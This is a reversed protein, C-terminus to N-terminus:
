ETTQTWDESLFLELAPPTEDILRLDYNIKISPELVFPDIATEGIFRRKSLLDTADGMLAGSIILQSYSVDSSNITGNGDAIFVGTLATVNANIMIDNAIFAGFGAPQFNDAITLTGDIVFTKSGETFTLANAVTLTVDDTIFYIGSDDPTTEWSDSGFFSAPDNADEDFEDWLGGTEIIDTTEDGTFVEGTSIELPTELKGFPNETTDTFTQIGINGGGRVEVYPRIIEVTASAGETSTSAEIIELITLGDCIKIQNNGIYFSSPNTWVGESVELQYEIVAFAVNNVEATDAKITLATNMEYEIDFIQTTELDFAAGTFEFYNSAPDSPDIDGKWEWQSNGSDLHHKYVWGSAAPITLDYVKIGTIRIDDSFGLDPSLTLTTKYLAKEDKAVAPTFTTKEVTANIENCTTCPDPIATNCEMDFDGTWNYLNDIGNWQWWTGSSTEDDPHCEGIALLGVAEAWDHTCVKVEAATAGTKCTKWINFETLGFSKHPTHKRCTVSGNLLDTCIGITSLTPPGGPGGGGPTSVCVINSFWNDNKEIAQNCIETSTGAGQILVDFNFEIWGNQSLDNVTLEVLGGAASGDHTINGTIGPNSTTVVENGIYVLLPDLNDNLITSFTSTEESEFRVTYTRTDGNNITGTPTISKQIFTVNGSGGSTKVCIINSAYPAVTSITLIAQNCLQTNSATAIVEATFLFTMSETDNLDNVNLSVLSLGSNFSITGTAGPDTSSITGPVLFSLGPDLQDLITDTLISGTNNTIQVSYEITDGTAVISGPVPDSTKTLIIATGSGSLSVCINDSSYPTGQFDPVVAKNCIQVDNIAIVEATFEFTMSHTDGLDFTEFSVISLSSNFSMTGSATPDTSSINGAAIFSLNPDLQDLITETIIGGSNNIIQVSYNIVDGAQVTSGPLPDSKKILEILDNNNVIVPHCIKNPPLNPPPTFNSAVLNEVTNIDFLSSTLSKFFEQIPSFLNELVNLVNPIFGGPGTTGPATSLLTVENCVKINPAGPDLVLVQFSAYATDGSQINQFVIGVTHTPLDYTVNLTPSSLFQLNSDLPDTLVIDLAGNTNNTAGITYTIIDGPYVPTGAPIDATKTLSILEDIVNHCVSNSLDTVIGDVGTASNCFTTNPSVNGNITVPFSMTQIDGPVMPPFSITVTHLTPDYYIVPTILGSFTVHPSLVDTVVLNNLTTNGINEASITYLITDGVVVTSGHPPNASKIIEFDPVNNFVVPHCIQNSTHTIGQYTASAQNCVQGPTPISSNIAVIFSKASSTGAAINGFNLTVTGASQSVGPDGSVFTLNSDLIDTASFNSLTTNGTNNVTITYTITDGPSLNTGAVPNATKVLTFNTSSTETVPHCVQNSIHTIGQYTASAQNCVQGPTSINSNVAVIFNKSASNGAAINGFNLTVTGASQSVGPYGSVFTLNSDLIDTASFNSLTTNGTNNATITYTITDGPDLDTGAVPTATKVLTFNTSSTETVPHCVQNSTHTIGQYTASAQNCVQGPTSISSNVAVIFNKSASNGAAINGFNLTVTGASQSVGPDGSVFTLNSDLIDTASFNSLTTNGTNNATITYTITDGPDLDTGAAPNATKTLTFNTVTTTVVELDFYTRHINGFCSAHDGLDFTATTGSVSLESDALTFHDAVFTPPGSVTASNYHHWAGVIHYQTGAPLTPLTVSPSTKTSPSADSSYVIGQVAHSANNWSIKIDTDHAMYNQYNPDGPFQQKANDHSYVQIRVKDGLSATGSLSHDYVPISVYGPQEPFYGLPDRTNCSGNLCKRASSFYSEKIKNNGSVYNVVYTPELCPCGYTPSPNMGFSICEADTFTNTFGNISQNRWLVGDNSNGPPQFVGLDSDTICQDTNWFYKSRSYDLTNFTVNSGTGTPNACSVLLWECEANVSSFSLIFSFGIVLFGFWRLKM